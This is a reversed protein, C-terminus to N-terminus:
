FRSAWVPTIIDGIIKNWNFIGERHYRIKRRIPMDATFKNQTTGDRFSNPLVNMGHWAAFRQWHMPLFTLLSTKWSRYNKLLSSYNLQFPGVIIMEDSQYEFSIWTRLVRWPNRHWWSIEENPKASKKEKLMFWRSIMSIQKCKTILNQLPLNCNMYLRIIYFSSKCFM